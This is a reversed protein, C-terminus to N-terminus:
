NIKEFYNTLYAECNEKLEQNIFFLKEKWSKSSHFEDIPFKTFVDVNMFVLTATRIIYDQEELNLKQKRLKYFKLFQKTSDKIHADSKQVTYKDLKSLNFNM